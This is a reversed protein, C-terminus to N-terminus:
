GRKRQNENKAHAPKSKGSSGARKQGKQKYRKASDLKAQKVAEEYGPPSLEPHCSFIADWDLSGNEKVNL